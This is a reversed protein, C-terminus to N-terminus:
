EVTVKKGKSKFTGVMSSELTGLLKKGSIKLASNIRSIKLGNIKIRSHGKQVKVQCNGGCLVWPDGAIKM